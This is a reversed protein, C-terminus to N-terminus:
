SLVVSISTTHSGDHDNWTHSRTFSVSSGGFSAASFSTGTDFAARRSRPTFNFVRGDSSRIRTSTDTPYGESDVKPIFNLDLASRLSYLVGTTKNIALSVSFGAHLEHSAVHSYAGCGGSSPASSSVSGYGTPTAGSAGNAFRMVCYDTSGYIVDYPPVIYQVSIVHTGSCDYADDAGSACNPSGVKEGEDNIFWGLLTTDYAREVASSITFQAQTFGGFLSGMNDCDPEVDGCCCDTGVAFKGNSKLLFKGNPGLIAM